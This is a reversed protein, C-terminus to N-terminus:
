WATSSCHSGVQTTDSTEYVGDSVKVLVGNLTLSYGGHDLTLGDGGVDSITFDYCSNSDLCVTEQVTDYPVIDTSYLDHKAVETLTALDTVTWSVESAWSDFLIDIILTDQPCGASAVVFSLRNWFFDNPVSRIVLGLSIIITDTKTSVTEGHWCL